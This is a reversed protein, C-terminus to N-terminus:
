SSWRHKGFLSMVAADAIDYCSPDNIVTGSRPGSKLTKKPWEIAELLDHKMSWALVQEKTSDSSKRDIKLGLQSRAHIVNVLEVQTKFIDEALYCVIGNFRTLTSLTKASSLGRRFSQLSEEACVLDVTYEKNLEEFHQKITAAKDYLSKKKSLHIGEYKVVFDRQPGETDVLTYATVSTSIDLGLILM